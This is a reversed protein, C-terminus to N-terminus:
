LFKIKRFASPTTPMDFEINNIDKRKVPVDFKMVDNNKNDIKHMRREKDRLMNKRRILHKRADLDDHYPNNNIYGNIQMIYSTNM